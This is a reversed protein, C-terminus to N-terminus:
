FTTPKKKEHLAKLYNIDSQKVGELKKDKREDKHPESCM